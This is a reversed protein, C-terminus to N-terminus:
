KGELLANILQQVTPVFNGRYMPDTAFRYASHGVFVLNDQMSGGHAIADLTQAICFSRPDPTRGTYGTSQSWSSFRCQSLCGICNARSAQIEQEAEKSLFVVSSDPTPAPICCGQRIYEQARKFDDDSLYITQGGTMKFPQTFTAEASDRYPMETKQRNILKELFRNRIASSYFGTPSFRQLLVDGKKLAMLTSQWAKWIPSEQTLLPRTGLQFALPGIDPNDIYDDWEAINWVGGGLIIPTKHLGFEAMQRRLEVLREYPRHPEDPNESNSLGNHGGALWPDEYVVGGLFEKYNQYSRLWLAKFARASSVIPYYFIGYKSAIEGLKYPMGAGCTIGNIFDKAGGLVHEVMPTIHGIRNQVTQQIEHMNQRLPPVIKDTITDRLVKSANELSELAGEIIAISGGMEWLFNMHVRGRNGATEYAIKAQSIAGAISYQILKEHREKRIRSLYEKPIINGDPGVTDAFVGSITGVAGAAAWAGSSAGTSIAVGKGGEILPLVEKGSIVIPNLKKM